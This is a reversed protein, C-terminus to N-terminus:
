KSVIILLAERKASQQLQFTPPFRSLLVNKFELPQYSNPIQASGLVVELKKSALSTEPQQVVEAYDQLEVNQKEESAIQSCSGPFTLFINYQDLCPQLMRGSSDNM